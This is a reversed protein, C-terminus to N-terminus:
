ERHVLKAHLKGAKQIQMLIAIRDDIPVQLQNLAQLLDSVNADVQKDTGVAVFSRQEIRPEDAAPTRVIVTMGKQSVIVPSIRADGSVAITGTTRDVTVRAEEAPMLVSLEEIDRIWSAPDGRQFTPVLAVVNKPDLAMAVREVDAALSLEANIAEAIAVALGWGAHHEDLVLTVYQEDSQIWSNRFPLERGFATFGMLVDEHITGGRNILGVTPTSAGAIELPGSAFAFVKTVHPDAYVLPTVVLRGGALSKASGIASVHVDVRDGERAGNEPVIADLLVLAVNRTDKLEELANIPAALNGLTQALARMTVAYDDGDGTGNLGVVLGHGVLRNIGQGKLSTADAVRVTVDAAAMRVVTLLAIASVTAHKM